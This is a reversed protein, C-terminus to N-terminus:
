TKSNLTTMNVGALAEM